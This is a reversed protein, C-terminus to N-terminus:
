RVLVLVSCPSRRLLLEGVHPTFVDKEQPGSGIVLLNFDEALRTLERVPNGTLLVEDIKVKDIHALERARKMVAEGWDGSDEGRLFAPERVVAVTVAADLQLALDLATELALVAKESGDFAALIKEYPHTGRSVLLPCPLRHAMAITTPRTTSAVWGKKPPPLLVVGASEARATKRVGEAPDNEIVEVRTDFQQGSRESEQVADAAEPGCLAVIELVQTNRALHVAEKFMSTARDKFKDAIGLILSSGYTRPFHPEACEMVDCVEDFLDAKGLILARDGEQFVFDDEPFILRAKRFVGAIQWDLRRFDSVPRGMLALNPVVEVDLLEVEGQGITTVRIRPDQLYQYINRAVLGTLMLPRVGLEEFGPRNEPDTVRSLINAIEAERAFGCFALNVRDSDTMAVAYEQDALGADELVVQSSADGAVVRAVSEFRGSVDKLRKEDKDVLTVRWKEGLRRLLEFTINGAGCILLNM